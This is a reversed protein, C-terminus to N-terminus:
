IGNVVTFNDKHLTGMSSLKQYVKEDVNEAKFIEDRILLM